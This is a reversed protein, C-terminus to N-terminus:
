FRQCQSTLQLWPSENFLRELSVTLLTLLNHRATFLRLVQWRWRSWRCLLWVDAGTGGAACGGV